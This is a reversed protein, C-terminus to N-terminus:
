WDVTGAYGENKIVEPAIYEVTGVFSMARDSANTPNLQSETDVTMAEDEIKPQLGTGGGCCMSFLNRGPANGTGNGNRRAEGIGANGRGGNRKNGKYKGKRPM